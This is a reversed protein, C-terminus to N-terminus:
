IKWVSDQSKPRIGDIKGKLITTFLAIAAKTLYEDNSFLTKEEHPCNRGFHEGFLRGCNRCVSLHDVTSTVGSYEIITKININSLKKGNADCEM